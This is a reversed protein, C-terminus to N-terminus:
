SAQDGPPRTEVLGSLLTPITLRPLYKRNMSRYAAYLSLLAIRFESLNCEIGIPPGGITSNSRVFRVFEELLMASDETQLNHSVRNRIANLKRSADFVWDCARIDTMAEAVRLFQSFTLRELKDPRATKSRVYAVLQEEVLLHGILIVSREDRDKFTIHKAFYLLEEVVDRQLRERFQSDSLIEVFTRENLHTRDDNM